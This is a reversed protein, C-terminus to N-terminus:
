LAPARFPRNTDSAALPLGEALIPRCASLQGTRAPVSALRHVCRGHIHRCLGVLMSEREPRARRLSVQISVNRQRHEACEGISLPWFQIPAIELFLNYGDNLMADVVGVYLSNTERVNRAIYGHM